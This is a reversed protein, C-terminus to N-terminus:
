TAQESPSDGARQRRSAILFVAGALLAMAGIALMDGNGGGGTRPLTCDDAPNDDGQQGPSCPTCDDAPNADNNDGPQCPPPPTCSDDGPPCVNENSPGACASTATPYSVTTTATPNVTVEIVLGDRLHADSPDPTWSGDAARKWGPWDTANGASDSSAGPYIFSGSFSDVELTELVTGNRDKVVMTAHQEAPTFGLPVITYNVYPVDRICAPSFASVDLSREPTTTTTVYDGGDGTGDDNTQAMVAVPSVMLAAVAM